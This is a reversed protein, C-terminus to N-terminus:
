RGSATNMGPSASSTAAATRAAPAAPSRTATWAVPCPAPWAAVELARKQDVGRAHAAGRDIRRAAGRPHLPAGLPPVDPGQGGLVPQGGQVPRGRVHADDAVGEAAAHAPEATAVPEGGVRDVAMSTTVASPSARGRRRPCRARGRRPGARPRRCSRRRSPAPTGGRGPRRRQVGAPEDPRPLLRPAHEARHASHVSVTGSSTVETPRIRCSGGRGSRGSANRPRWSTTM